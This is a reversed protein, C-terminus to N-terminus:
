EKDETELNLFHEIWLKVDESFIYKWSEQTSNTKYFLNKNEQKYKEYLQIWDRAAKQLEKTYKVEIATFPGDGSYKYGKVEKLTKLKDSMTIYGM